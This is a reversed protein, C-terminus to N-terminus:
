GEAATERIKVPPPEEVEIEEPPPEPHARRGMAYPAVVGVIG